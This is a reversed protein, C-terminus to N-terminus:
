AGNTAKGGYKRAILNQAEDWDPKSVAKDVDFVEDEGALWKKVQSRKPDRGRNQRYWQVCEAIAADVDPLHAFEAKMAAAFEDRTM